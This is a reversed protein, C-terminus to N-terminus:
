AAGAEKLRKPLLFDIVAFLAIAAGGLPFCLALVAGIVLAAKPIAYNRPYLPSALEGAPRRKWWMVIGSVAIFIVLLCYIVNFIINWLGTQGEHLAIGIAMAKGGVPYDAFKIDALIKGTYQDVHVTRDSFPNSSDYSQSDRSLTWVGKEDAPAALQFRGNFGLARGLVAVSELTVPVGMPLGTIGTASGSEPMLTQELTWPVEKLGSHNMSAHDVNSLPVNDFKEPPFTSWAQVYKSGWVTTWALGSILFFLLFISIWFGAVEHLSKWWARGKASFQPWFLSRMSEIKPWWLFLGTVLSIIGLSAAIEILTDGVGGNGGLLLTGHIKTLFENWNGTQPSDRLISGNYPDVAIMCNGSELDVRLLAPNGGSRPAIYQGIHGEPHTNLAAASQETVSLTTAAPQVALMDGYEPAIATFWLMLMGTIALLLMFPAVYLGAYFHWRWVARYLRTQNIQDLQGTSRSATM